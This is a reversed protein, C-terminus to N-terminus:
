RFVNDEVLRQLRPEFDGPYARWTELMQAALSSWHDESARALRELAGTENSEVWDEYAQRLEASTSIQELM